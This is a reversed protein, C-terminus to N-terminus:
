DKTKKKYLSNKITTKNLYRDLKKLNKEIKEIPIKCSMKQTQFYNIITCTITNLVIIFSQAISYGLKTEGLLSLFPESVFPVFYVILYGIITYIVSKLGMKISLTKNIKKCKKSSSYVSIGIGLLFSIISLSVLSIITQPINNFKDILFYNTFFINGTLIIITLLISVIVGNM